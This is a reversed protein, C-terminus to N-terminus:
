LGPVIEKISKLFEAARKMASNEQLYEIGRPTIKVGDPMEKFGDKVGICRVKVLGEVLGDDILHELLYNWYEEGIPFDKTGYNLYEWSPREGSKLCAYLYSLFRYVLVFYDDKAM